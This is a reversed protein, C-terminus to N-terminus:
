SGWPRFFDPRLGSPKWGGDEFKWGGASFREVPLKICNACYRAGPYKNVTGGCKACARQWIAVTAPGPEVIGRERRLEDQRKRIEEFDDAARPNSM